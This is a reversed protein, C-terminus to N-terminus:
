VIEEAMNAIKEFGKEKIERPIPGFVRTAVPEKKADIVVVANESFRVISGDERKFDKKQRM